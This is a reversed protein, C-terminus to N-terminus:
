VLFVIKPELDSVVKVLLTVLKAHQLLNVTSNNPLVLMKLIVHLLITIGDIDM